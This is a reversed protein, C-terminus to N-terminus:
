LELGASKSSDLILRLAFLLNTKGVKNEGLIVAHDGVECRPIKLQSFEQYHDQEPAYVTGIQREM